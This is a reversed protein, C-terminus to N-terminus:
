CLLDVWFDEIQNIFESPTHVEQVLKLSEKQMIRKDVEDMEIYKKITKALGIENDEEIFFGNVKNKLMLNTQGVDRAIIANECAMAEM